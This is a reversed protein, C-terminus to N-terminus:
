ETKKKRNFVFFLVAIVLVSLIGYWYAPFGEEEDHDHHAHDHDHHHDHSHGEGIAFTVTAWNSEHTLGEEETEVLHITRIYWIGASSIPVSIMGQEDTRLQLMEDHQHDEEEGHQHDGEHDHSHSHGDHTHAHTDPQSGVYVLQNPLPKGDFLLKVPISHGPHATYPNELLIFEIPYGFERQYDDTFKDGVQFIVKVHKSYREVASDALTGQEERFALMDLLGDHELYNNFDEASMGFDRAKTSVGAVWTGSAGTTFNLYTTNEKEFWDATDVQNREGQGVISVDLMRDRTIVNDSRDWTGNYLAIESPTNPQLFYKGLKLYMDHSSLLLLILLGSFIRKM